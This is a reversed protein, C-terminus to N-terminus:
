TEMRALGARVFAKVQATTWPQGAFLPKIGNIETSLAALLPSEVLAGIRGLIRKLRDYRDEDYLFNIDEVTYVLCEILFSPLRAPILELEALEYNLRKLQRVVKKFRHRTASRKAKGNDHHQQPFNFTWSGDMGLIAVGETEYHGGLAGMNRRIWHLQFAPVVDVDARSGSLGAVTIAKNGLKVNESGFCAFLDVLLQRRMEAAVDAYSRGLDYYGLQRYAQDPIAGAAYEIRISPHLARLDMDAETRVNTNNFYSGQPEVTVQEHSLWQNGLVISRAMGAARQIKDEEHESAPREWHTLRDNWSRRTRAAADELFTRIGQTMETRDLGKLPPSGRGAGMRAGGRCPGQRRLGRGPEDLSESPGQSPRGAKDYLRRALAEDSLDKYEPFLPRFQSMGYFCTDFPNVKSYLDWRGPKAGRRGYDTGLEGRADGCM